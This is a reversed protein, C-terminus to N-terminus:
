IYSLSLNIYHTKHFWEELIKLKFDSQDFGNKKMKQTILVM